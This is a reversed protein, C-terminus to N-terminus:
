PCLTKFATFAPDSASGSAIATLYAKYETCSSLDDVEYTMKTPSDRSAPIHYDNSTTTNSVTLKYETVCRSNEKPKLWELVVSTTQIDHTELHQPQTSPASETTFSVNAVTSELGTPSLTTVEIYYDSCSLLGDKHVTSMPSDVNAKRGSAPAETLLSNDTVDLYKDKIDVACQPNVDPMRYKYTVDTPGVDVIQLDIVPNPEVDATAQVLRTLDSEMGRPSRFVVSIEYQTCPLVDTINFIGSGDGEVAIDQCQEDFVVEDIWCVEAEYACTDGPNGTWSVQITTPSTPKADVSLPASPDLDETSTEVSAAIGVVGAANSASVSITVNRCPPLPAITNECIPDCRQANLAQTTSSSDGLTAHAHDHWTFAFIDVCLPNTLPDHFTVTVYNPGWEKVQLDQPEGPVGNATKLDTAAEDGLGGLHTLGKVTFFYHSCLQLMDLTETTETTNFCEQDTEGELRMCVQYEGICAPNDTPADWSITTNSDGTGEVELNMPMGPVVDSTHGTTSTKNGVTAGGFHPTLDFHYESCANLFDVVTTCSELPCKVNTEFGEEVNLLTYFTLATEGAEFDWGLTITDETGEVQRFNKIQGLSQALTGSGFCAVLVLYLLTMAKPVTERM